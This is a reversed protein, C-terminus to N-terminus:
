THHKHSLRQLFLLIAIFYKWWSLNLREPLRRRSYILELSFHNITAPNTVFIGGLMTTSWNPIIPSRVKIRAASVSGLKTLRARPASRVVRPSLRLESTLRKGVKPPGQASVGHRGWSISKWTGWSYRVLVAILYAVIAVDCNLSVNFM